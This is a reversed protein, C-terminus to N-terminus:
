RDFFPNSAAIDVRRRAAVVEGSPGDHLLVAFVDRMANRDLNIRLQTDLGPEVARSGIVRGDLTDVIVVRGPASSKVIQLVVDNGRPHVPGAIIYDPDGAGQAAAQLPLAALLAILALM